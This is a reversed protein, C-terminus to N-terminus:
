VGELNRGAEVSGIDAFRNKDGYTIVVVTGRSVRASLALFLATRYESSTQAVCSLTVRRAGVTSRSLVLRAVRCTRGKVGGAAARGTRRGESQSEVAVRAATAAGAGAGHLRASRRRGFRASRPPVLFHSEQVAEFKVGWIITGAAPGCDAYCSVVRSCRSFAGAHIDRAKM